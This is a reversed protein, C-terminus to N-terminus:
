KWHTYLKKEIIKQQVEQKRSCDTRGDMQKDHRWRDKQGYMKGNDTLKYMWKNTTQRETRRDRDTMERDTQRDM